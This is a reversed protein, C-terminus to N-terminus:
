TLSVRVSEVETYLDIANRPRCELPVFLGPSATVWLEARDEVPSTDCIVPM